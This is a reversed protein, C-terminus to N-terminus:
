CDEKAISSCVGIRERLFEYRAKPLPKTLIDANQNETKCYILQIEGERQVERLFYLKLKFHKTKGHFVPNNAISIAAQNDVLIQISEKQEMNLDAMAHIQASEKQEMNLDAMLKRLWLAQNVAAAAAVYEAEATSQAIAEQKKSCWSFIASGFSFCYGSASRMDDVCSAWDSDSYGHLTFNKVKCFQLGYDITDKIYRVIRKAAQFHIESASHMYRSLISIANMIDLRTATLYMLCSILTRYLREDVKAAGDEKCFKEKQNMPTAKPKCGEMHFKKLIERAYKHQCIFIENKQQKSEMGLFFKVKGLDTMEFVDKMERTFTDIQAMSSGRISTLSHDPEGSLNKMLIMMRRQLKQTARWAKNQPFPLRTQKGYQCTACTPLEEELEPLGEGLNNKKMFLLTTHHVHGLRRHWLMTTSDEKHVAAHEEEMLNLAFSKGEMQVKFVERGQADTILCYNDDFLVKYGKELLQGVSLLNQNINPVYLVNSILKLGTHGEIAVTGKGKVALYAGNGIKVKSIATKDLEKFLEQNYTMHSTCGSDILWSEKSSKQPHNSKKCHPCPPFTTNNSSNNSNSQKEKKCMNNQSTVHFAGNVSGEQRMLRRQEQAQLANLLEALTISSVDKSNEISSITAEFKEPVTVLIKQVIRSDSFDTGLLRVKNVIDLLRDSYDKITESEKMRQMEFDRILNLVQMGKVQENGEYEKKLFDWIGKATKLTMVRTFISSSVVAFLSAKAKSKRQRM